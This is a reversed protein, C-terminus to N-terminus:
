KNKQIDKIFDKDKLTRDLPSSFYKTYLSDILLEINYRLAEHRNVRYNTIQNNIQDYKQSM